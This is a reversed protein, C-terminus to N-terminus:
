ELGHFFRKWRLELPNCIMSLVPLTDQCSLWVFLAKGMLNEKPLPGWYRSDKSNDRNDGMMFYNGEPVHFPQAWTRPNGKFHILRHTHEGVKEEYFDFFEFSGELDTSDVAYYPSQSSPDASSVPLEVRPIPEGNVVLQGDDKMQIEDGPLGIVRKIMFYSEDVAKFVVIDGRKPGEFEVIWSKSFPWRVGYAFKNVLIHDHVLLTPIMSGSPIVFPEFLLWRFALIALIAGFFSFFGDGFKTKESKGKAVSVGRESATIEV